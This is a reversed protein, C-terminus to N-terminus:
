IVFTWGTSKYIYLGETGDTQYVMLSIGPSSIALRDAQTMSPAPMSGKTASRVQFLASAHIAGTSVSEILTNGVGYIAGATGVNQYGFMGWGGAGNAYGYLGFQNAVGVAGYDLGNFLGGRSNLSTGTVATGNTSAFAGGNGNTSQGYYAATAGDAFIAYGSIAATNVGIKGTVNVSRDGRIDVVTGAQTAFRYALDTVTNGYAYWDHSYQAVPPAAFAEWYFRNFNTHAATFGAGDHFRDGSLILDNEAWNTDASSIITSNTGDSFNFTVTGDGNDVVTTISRGDAGDAGAPGPTLQLNCAYSLLNAFAIDLTQGPQVIIDNGCSLAQGTWLYSEIPFAYTPGPVVTKTCKCPDVSGCSNCKNCDQNM